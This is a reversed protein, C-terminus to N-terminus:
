RRALHTLMADALRDAAGDAYGLFLSPETLELEILVPAGDPGPICTSGPTSCGSPGGPVAALVQAAVALEAPPPPRAAHDDEPRYLGDVGLDPGTSCRRGQPHRPQVYATRAPWSCCRPRAPPTSRPLYPQVM